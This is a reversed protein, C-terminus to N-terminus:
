RSAVEPGPKTAVRGIDFRGAVGAFLFTSVRPDSVNQWTSSGAAERTLFTTLTTGILPSIRVQPAARFDVGVQARVVDFGHSSDVSSDPQRVWLGRWGSGMGVWPDVLEFPRFHWNAHVGAAASYINSGDLVASGLGYAAGSGYAGVMLHPSLRYGLDFEVAGGASTTDTLTAAQRGSLRGFPQSYGTAIGIELANVPATGVSPREVTDAANEQAMATASSLVIAASMMMVYRMPTEKTPEM